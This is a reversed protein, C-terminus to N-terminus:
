EYIALLLLAKGRVMLLIMNEYGTTPVPSLGTVKQPQAPHFSLGVM